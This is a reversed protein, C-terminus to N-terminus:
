LTSAHSKNVLERIDHNLSDLVQSLAQQTAQAYDYMGQGAATIEVHYTESLLPGKVGRRTLVFHLEVESSTQEKGAVRDFEIVRGTLRYRHPLAHDTNFVYDAARTKGLYTALQHQIMKAPSESWFHYHHRQLQLPKEAERYVIARGNRLTDTQLRDVLLGGKLIPAQSNNEPEPIALRYYHDEPVPSVTGCGSIAFFLVWIFFKCYSKSNM